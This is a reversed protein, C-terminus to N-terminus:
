YPKSKQLLKISPYKLKFNAVYILGFIDIYAYM